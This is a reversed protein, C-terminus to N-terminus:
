IRCLPIKHLKLYSEFCDEVAAGYLAGAGYLAYGDKNM